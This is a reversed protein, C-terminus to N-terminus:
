EVERTRTGGKGFLGVSIFSLAIATGFGMSPLERGILGELWGLSWKYGLYLFVGRGCLTWFLLALSLILEGIAAMM